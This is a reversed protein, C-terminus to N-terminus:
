APLESAQDPGTMVRERAQGLDHVDETPPAPPAPPVIGRSIADAFVADVVREAAHGDDHPAFRALFDDYREGYRRVVGPLDRLTAYLEDETTVVPGPVDASYDLYFGRLKDRYAELDFAYFIMPRRLAAYDFFVSSYDTVLVDSALYLEQIEPYTSVDVVRDALAEPVPAGDRVLVHMRLLLVVDPGLERTFRELDIPLAFSFRNHGAPQDDRFTPAYLVVTADPGIGLKRRVRRGVDGADPRFFVDNRPYGQEVVPGTYHFASRM